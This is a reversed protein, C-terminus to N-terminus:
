CRLHTPLRTRCPVSRRTNCSITPPCFRCPVYGRPKCPWPRSSGKLGPSLHFCRGPQAGAAAIMGSQQCPLAAHASPHLGMDTTCSALLGPLTCQTPLGMLSSPGDALHQTVSHGGARRGQAARCAVGPIADDVFHTVLLPPSHQFHM